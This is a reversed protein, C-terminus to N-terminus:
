VALVQGVAVAFPKPKHPIQRFFMLVALRSIEAERSRDPCIFIRESLDSRIKIQHAHYSEFRRGITYLVVARGVSSCAGTENVSQLALIKGDVSSFQM